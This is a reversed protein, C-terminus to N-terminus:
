TSLHFFVYASPKLGQKLPNKKEIVVCTKVKTGSEPKLGQKLPNKKEISCAVDGQNVRTHKLGQKLPNKKEINVIKLILQENM